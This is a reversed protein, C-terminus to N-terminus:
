DNWAIGAGRPLMKDMRVYCARLFRRVAVTDQAGKGEIVHRVLFLAGVLDSPYHVGAYTRRLGVDTCFEVLRQHERANQYFAPFKHVLYTGFLLAQAMHGSPFSKSSASQSPECVFGRVGCPRPRGISAKMYHIVSTHESLSRWLRNWRVVIDKRALYDLYGMFTRMGTDEERFFDRHTLGPTYSVPADLRPRLLTAMDLREQSERGRLTQYIRRQLELLRQM